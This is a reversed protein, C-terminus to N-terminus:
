AGIENTICEVNSSVSNLCTCTSTISNLTFYYKSYIIKVWVTTQIIIVSNYKCCPELSDVHCHQNQAISIEIVRVNFNFLGLLFCKFLASFVNLKKPWAWYFMYGEDFLTRHMSCYPVYNWITLEIIMTAPIDFLRASLYKTPWFNLKSSRLEIM